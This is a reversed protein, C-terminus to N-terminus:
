HLRRLRRLGDLTYRCNGLYVVTAVGTGSLLISHVTSSPIFSLWSDMASWQKRCDAKEEKFDQEAALVSRACSGPKRQLRFQVSVRDSKLKKPVSSSVLGM